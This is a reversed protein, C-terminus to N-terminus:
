GLQTETCGFRARIERMGDGGDGDVLAAERASPDTDKAIAMRYYDLSKALADCAARPENLQSHRSARRYSNKSANLYDQASTLPVLTLEPSGTLKGDASSPEIAALGLVMATLLYM